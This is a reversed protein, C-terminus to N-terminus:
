DFRFPVISLAACPMGPREPRNRSGSVGASPRPRRAPVDLGRHGCFCTPGATVTAATDRLDFPWRHRHRTAARRPHFGNFRCPARATVEIRDPWDSMAVRARRSWGRRADPLCGSPQCCRRRSKEWSATPRAGTEPVRGAAVERGDRRRARRGGAPKARKQYKYKM